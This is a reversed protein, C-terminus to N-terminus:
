GLIRNLFITQYITMNKIYVDNMNIQANVWKANYGDYMLYDRNAPTSTSTGAAYLELEAIEAWNVGGYTETILLAYYQYATTIGDSIKFITNYHEDNEDQRYETIPPCLRVRRDDVIDWSSNNNSGFLICKKIFSPNASPARSYLKYYHLLIASPLQIKLWDGSIENM